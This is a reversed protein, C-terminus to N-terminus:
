ATFVATLQSPLLPNAVLEYRGFRIFVAGQERWCDLRAPGSVRGMYVEYRGVRIALGPATIITLKGFKKHM